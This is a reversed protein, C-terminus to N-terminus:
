CKHRVRRHLPVLIQIPFIMPPHPFWHDEYVYGELDEPRPSRLLWLKVRPSVRTIM